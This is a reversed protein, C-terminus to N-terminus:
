GLLAAHQDSARVTRYGEFGHTFSVGGRFGHDRQGHLV